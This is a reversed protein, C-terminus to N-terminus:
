GMKKMGELFEEKSICGPKTSGLKWVIVLLRVQISNDFPSLADGNLM